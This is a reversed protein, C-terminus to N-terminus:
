HKEGDIECLIEYYNKLIKNKVTYSLTMTIWQQTPLYGIYLPEEQEFVKIRLEGETTIFVVFEDNEVALTFLVMDDETCAQIYFKLYLHFGKSFPWKTTKNIM